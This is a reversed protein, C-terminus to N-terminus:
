SVNPINVSWTGIYADIPQFALARFMEVLLYLRVVAYAIFGLFIVFLLLLSMIGSIWEKIDEDLKKTEPTLLTSAPNADLPPTALQEVGPVEKENSVAPLPETSVTDNSLQPDDRPPSSSRSSQRQSLSSTKTQPKGQSKEEDKEGGDKGEENKEDDDKEEKDKEKAGTMRDWIESVIAALILFAFVAPPFSACYIAAVRWLVLETHTPFAFNWAIIHVGGFLMGSVLMSSPIWLPNVETETKFYLAFNDEINEWFDKEQEPEPNIIRFAEEGGDPLSLITVPVEVGKPKTWCLGYMIVACFAFAVTSIELQTVALGQVARAIVQICLWLIQFVTILRMLGDSKSKDDIEAVSIDPLRPLVEVERLALIQKPNLPQPDKKAKVKGSGNNTKAEKDNIQVTSETKFPLSSDVEDHTEPIPPPTPPASGVEDDAPNVKKISNTDKDAIEKGGTEQDEPNKDETQISCDIQDPRKQTQVNSRMVFGGMVAFMCHTHTWQVDDEMAVKKFDKMLAQADRLDGLHKALLIEPAIITVLFWASAYEWRELKWTLWGWKGEPYHERQRTSPVDPHQVTWTCSIITFLCSWVINLTGRTNPSSVYSVTESGSPLTCNTNFTTFADTLTVFYLAIILLPFGM